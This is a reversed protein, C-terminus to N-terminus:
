WVGSEYKTISTELAELIPCEEIPKTEDDCIGILESLAQSMIKMTKIKHELQLKKAIAVNRVDNCCAADGKELELLKRIEALTFGCHQAQKIFRIRRLAAEEYLRYRAETKQAPRLLGEKEYFRIADISVGARAAVKGITLM